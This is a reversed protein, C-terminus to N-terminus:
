GNNDSLVETSLLQWGRGVYKYVRGDEALGWITSCTRGRDDQWHSSIIQDFRVDQQESM